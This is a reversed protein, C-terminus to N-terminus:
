QPRLKKLLEKNITRIRRPTERLDQRLQMWEANVGNYLDTFMQLLPASVANQQPNIVMRIDHPVLEIELTPAKRSPIGM